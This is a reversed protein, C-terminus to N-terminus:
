FPFLSITLNYTVDFTQGALTGHFRLTHRGPLLPQVAIYYGADASPSFVQGAPVDYINNAPLTASFLDSQEYYRAPNQIAVGDLSAQLNTAEAVYDVQDRVYTETRQDAPDDPFAFYASNVVPFIITRGSPITCSRTVTNVAPEVLEGPAGALFWVPGSQGTGCKAGTTDLLASTNKPQALIWKWWHAAHTRYPQLAPLSNPPYVLNLISSFSQAGAGSVATLCLMLAAIFSWNRSLLKSPSRM